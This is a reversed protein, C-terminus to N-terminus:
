ISTAIPDTWPKAFPKCSPILPQALASAAMKMGNPQWAATISRSTYESNTRIQKLLRNIRQISDPTYDLKLPQWVAPFALGGEPQRNQHLCELLKQMQNAIPTQM